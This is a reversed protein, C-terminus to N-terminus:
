DRVYVQAPLNFDGRLKEDYNLPSIWWKDNFWKTNENM